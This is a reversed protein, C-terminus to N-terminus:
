SSTVEQPTKTPERSWVVSISKVRIVSLTSTLRRYQEPCCFFPMTRFETRLRARRTRSWAQSSQSSTAFAGSSVKSASHASCPRRTRSKLVSNRSVMIRTQLAAQLIKAAWGETTSASAGHLIKPSMCPCNRSRRRRKQAYPVGSTSPAGMNTKLPSKTSRPHWESSTMKKSRARFTSSGSRTHSTRPLWSSLFMFLFYPKSSSHQALSPSSKPGFIKASRCFAKSWKGRAHTTPPRTNTTCPPMPSPEQRSLSRRLTLRGSLSSSRQLGSISQTLSMMHDSGMSSSASSPRRMKPTCSDGREHELNRTERKAQFTVFVNQALFPKLRMTRLWWALFFPRPKSTMCSFRRM